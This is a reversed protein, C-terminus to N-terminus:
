SSGNDLPRNRADLLFDIHHVAYRVDAKNNVFSVGRTGGHAFHTLLDQIKVAISRYPDDPQPGM